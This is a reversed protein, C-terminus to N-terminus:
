PPSSFVLVSICVNIQSYVSVILAILPKYSITSELRAKRESMGLHPFPGEM